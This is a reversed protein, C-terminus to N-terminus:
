AFFDQSLCIFPSAYFQQRLDEDLLGACLPQCLCLPQRAPVLEGAAPKARLASLTHASVAPVPCYCVTLLYTGSLYVHRGMKLFNQPQTSCIPDYVFAPEQRPAVTAVPRWESWGDGNHLAEISYERGDEGMVRIRM